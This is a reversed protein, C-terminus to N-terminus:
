EKIKKARKIQNILTQLMEYPIAGKINMIYRGNKFILTLPLPYNNGIHLQNVLYNALAENDKHISLFFRSSYRKMFKKIIKPNTDSKLLVGIIFIDKYNKLQLRNLSPLLGRCPSCKTSLLTIIVIKQSIRRFSGNLGQFILLTKRNDIDQIHFKISKTSNSLKTPIARKIKPALEEQIEKPLQRKEKKECGTFLLFFSIFIIFYVRIQM